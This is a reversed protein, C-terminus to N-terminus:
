NASSKGTKTVHDGKVTESISQAPENYGPFQQIHEFGMQSLTGTTSLIRNAASKLQNILTVRKLTTRLM